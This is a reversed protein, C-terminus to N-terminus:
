KLRNNKIIDFLEGSVVEIYEINDIIEVQFGHYLVTKNATKLDSVNEYPVLIVPKKVGIWKDFCSELITYDKEFEEELYQELYM